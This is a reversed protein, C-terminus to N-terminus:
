PYIFNYELPACSYANQLARQKDDEVAAAHHDDAETNDRYRLQQPHNANVPTSQHTITSVGTTLLFTHLSSVKM